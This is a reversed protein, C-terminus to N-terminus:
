YIMQLNKDGASPAQGQALNIEQMYELPVGTLTMGAKYKGQMMMTQVELKPYVSKVHEIQKMQAITDETLYLSEEGDSGGGGWYSESYVEIATLSGYSSILERNLENLGIGLSVMVVISATGIIVGLVTLATRLKRRRLNNLSMTLLDGFKM